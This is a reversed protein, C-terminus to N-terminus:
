FAILSPPYELCGPDLMAVRYYTLVGDRRAEGKEAM